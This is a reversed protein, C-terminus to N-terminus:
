RSARLPLTATAGGASVRVKKLKAAAARLKRPFTVKVAVTKGAAIKFRAAGLKTKKRDAKTVTVTGSCTGGGSPCSLKLTAVGKKLTVGARV